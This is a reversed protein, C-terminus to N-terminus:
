RRWRRFLGRRQPRSSYGGGAEYGIYGEGSGTTGVFSRDNHLNDHLDPWQAYTLSHLYNTSQGHTGILHNGLCMLCGMHPWSHTPGARRALVEDAVPKELVIRVVNGDADSLEHVDYGVLSDPIPAAYEREATAIRLEAFRSDARGASPKVRTGESEAAAERFWSRLVQASQCGSMQQWAHGKILMVFHPTEWVQCQRALNSNSAVDVYYVAFDDSRLEQVIESVRECPEARFILLAVDEAVPVVVESHIVEAPSGMVLLSSLVLAFM